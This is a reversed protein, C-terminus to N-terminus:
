PTQIKRAANLGLIHAAEMAARDREPMVDFEGSAEARLRVPDNAPLRLRYDAAFMEGAGPISVTAGLAIAGPTTKVCKATFEGREKLRERLKGGYEDAM